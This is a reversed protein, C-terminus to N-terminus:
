FIHENAYTISVHSELVYWEQPACCNHYHTVHCLFWYQWTMHTIRSKKKKKKQGSLFFFFFCVFFFFFFFFFLFFCFLFVVVVVVFFFFFFFFFFSCIVVNPTSPPRAKSPETRNQLFTIGFELSYKSENRGEVIRSHFLRGASTFWCLSQGRKFIFKLSIGRFNRFIVEKAVSTIVSVEYLILFQICYM